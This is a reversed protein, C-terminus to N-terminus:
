PGEGATIDGNIYRQLVPAVAAVLEDRSAQALPPLGLIYRGIALGILQSGVLGARVGPQDIGSQALAAQVSGLLSERVMAAAAEETVASRVLGLLSRRQSDSDWADLFFAAIGEGAHAPDANLEASLIAGPDFPPHMSEAFLAEKNGFFHMVLAPDVGATAAIGRITAGRYGAATFAERAAVLIAERTASTGPRRGSRRERASNVM